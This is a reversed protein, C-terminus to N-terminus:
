VIGIAKGREHATDLEIFMDPATEALGCASPPLSYFMAAVGASPMIM